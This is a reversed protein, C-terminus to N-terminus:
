PPRPHFSLLELDLYEGEMGLAQSASGTVQSQPPWLCQSKGPGVGSGAEGNGPKALFLIGWGGGIGGPPFETLLSQIEQQCERGIVESQVKSLLSEQGLNLLLHSEQSQSIDFSNAFPENLCNNLIETYRDLSFYFNKNLM